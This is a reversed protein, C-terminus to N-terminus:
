TVEFLAGGIRYRDGICVDCDPLGDVTLNEGFQGYAFDDRQLERSWHHYSDLQYVM